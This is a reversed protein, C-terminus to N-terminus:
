VIELGRVLPTVRKTRSTLGLVGIEKLDQDTLDFLIGGDRRTACIVPSLLRGFSLRRAPMM